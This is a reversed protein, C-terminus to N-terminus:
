RSGVASRTGGMRASVSSFWGEGTLGSPALPAPSPPMTGTPPTMALATAEAKRSYATAGLASGSDGARTHRSMASAFRAHVDEERGVLDAADLDPVADDHRRHRRPEGVRVAEDGVFLDGIVDRAGLAADAEDRALHRRGLTAAAMAEMLEADIVVAEQGAERAEGGRDMGFAGLRRDLEAVGAPVRPAINAALVGIAGDAM